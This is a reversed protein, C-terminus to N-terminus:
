RAKSQPLPQPSLQNTDRSLGMLINRTLSSSMTDPNLMSAPIAYNQQAQPSLLMNRAQESLYPIGASIPGSAKGQVTQRAAYNLSSGSAGALPANVADAANRGFATAFDAMQALRGTLLRGAKTPTARISELAQVDIIGLTPNV